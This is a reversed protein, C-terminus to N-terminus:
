NRGFIRWCMMIAALQAFWRILNQHPLAAGVQSQVLHELRERTLSESGQKAARYAEGFTEAPAKASSEARATTEAQLPAMGVLQRLHLRVEDFPRTSEVRVRKAEFPRISFVNQSM